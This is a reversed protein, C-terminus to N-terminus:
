GIPPGTIAIGLVIAITLLLPLAIAITLCGAIPELRNRMTEPMSQNGAGDRDDAFNWGRDRGRDPHIGSLYHCVGVGGCSLGLLWEQDPM